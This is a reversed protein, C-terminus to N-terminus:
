KILKDNKFIHDTLENNKLRLRIFKIQADITNSLSFYDLIITIISLNQTTAFYIIGHGM